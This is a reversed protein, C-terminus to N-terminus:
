RRGGRQGGGSPAPTRTSRSAPARSPAPASRVSPRSVSPPPASRSPAPSVRPASPRVSSRSPTAPTSRIRPQPAPRSAPTQQITTSRSPSVRTSPAARTSPSIRPSPTRRLSPPTQRTAPLSQITSPQRYSSGDPSSATPQRSDSEASQLSPTAPRVITNRRSSSVTGPYARFTRNPSTRQTNRTSPPIRVDGPTRMVTGQGPIAVPVSPDRPTQVISRSTTPRSSRVQGRSRGVPATTSPAVGAPTIVRSRDPVTGTRTGADTRNASRQASAGPSETGARQARQAPPVSQAQPANARANSDRNDSRQSVNRADSGAGAPVGERTSTSRASERRSRVSPNSAGDPAATDATGAGQGGPEATSFTSGGGDPPLTGRRGPLSQAGAPAGPVTASDPSTGGSGSAPPIMVVSSGGESILQERREMMGVNRNRNRIQVTQIDGRTASAVRDLGIGENIITNNDGNVYNNIATTEAHIGKKRHYPEYYHYPYRDCFRSYPIYTYCQYGLGFGFSASVFGGNYYLGYGSYYDCYPPLPAWGCYYKNYRWSVWSPGWVSGPVWVWGVRPYACWRGYHFPAWGWSYNSYWYWGQTSWLWRGNHSYPLWEYDLVAVTPQWVYGYEPTRYWTGYPSLPEYFSAVEEPLPDDSGPQYVEVPVPPPAPQDQVFEEGEVQPWPPVHVRNSESSADPFVGPAPQDLAMASPLPTVADAKRRQEANQPSADKVILAQIVDTSVGLDNLYVIEDSRVVFVNTSNTVYSLVVSESVGARTLKIVEEVGPSLPPLRPGPVPSPVELAPAPAQPVEAPPAQPPEATISGDPVAPAPTEQAPPTEPTPVPGVPAQLVPVTQAMLPASLRTPTDRCGNFFFSTGLVLVSTLTVFGQSKM